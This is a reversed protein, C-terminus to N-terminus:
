NQWQAEKDFGVGKTERYHLFLDVAQDAEDYLTEHFQGEPESFAVAFLGDELRRVEVLGLLDITFGAPHQLLQVLLEKETM